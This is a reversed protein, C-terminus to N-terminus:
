RVPAPPAPPRLAWRTRLAGVLALVGCSGPLVLFGGVAETVGQVADMREVPGATLLLVAGALFAFVISLVAMALMGRGLLRGSAVNVHEALVHRRASLAAVGVILAPVEAAVALIMGIGHIPHDATPLQGGLLLTTVVAVPAWLVLLGTTTCRSRIRRAEPAGM